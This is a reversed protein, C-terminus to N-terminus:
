PVTLFERAGNRLAQLIAQGDGRASIALIPMDLTDETLQSILQLAKAQDSDLSIVAVDPSSQSIVEPFFEYRACEAERWIPEMALLVNRLAERSTDSPDVIAIRQVDRMLVVSESDPNGRRSSRPRSVAGGCTTPLPSLREYGRRRCGLRRLSHLLVKARRWRK